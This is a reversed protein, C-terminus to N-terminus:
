AGCRTLGCFQALNYPPSPIQLSINNPQKDYQSPSFCQIVAFSRLLHPHYVRKTLSM